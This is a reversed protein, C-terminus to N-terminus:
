GAELPNTTARHVIHIVWIDSPQPGAVGRFVPPGDLGWGVVLTKSRSVASVTPNLTSEREARSLTLVGGIRCELRAPKLVAFNTAHLLGVVDITWRRPPPFISMGYLGM